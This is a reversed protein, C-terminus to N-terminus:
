DAREGLGKLGIGALGMLVAMLAAGGFGVAIRSLSAGTHKWIEGDRVIAALGTLISEPAPLVYPGYRRAAAEWAGRGTGRVFPFRPSARGALICPWAACSM